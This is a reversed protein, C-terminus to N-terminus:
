KKGSLVEVWQGQARAHISADYMAEAYAGPFYFRGRFTVHFRNTITISNERSYYKDSYLSFYSLVRDDRIDQYDLPKSAEIPRGEMRPNIIEWGSPAIQTLAINKVQRGSTNKVTTKVMVEDGQRLASPDIIKGEPSMITVDIKLRSSVPKEEGSQPVGRVSVVSFLKKDGTNTIKVPTKSLPFGELDTKFIVKGYGSIKEKKGNVEYDFSSDNSQHAGEGVFFRSMAMLSYAISQTSHWHDKALIDSIETALPFARNNDNLRTLVELIVARDRLSSGYSFGPTSYESVSLTALQAMDAAAEKQGAIAYAGALFWRSMNNLDRKEKLRNMAGLEPAGALSLTYLRYARVAEPESSDSNAKSRQFKLWSDLMNPPVFYGKAKAELLFHGAYNAAWSDYSGGPWYTFGGSAMQFGKLKEIGRTVNNQIGNKKDEKLDMLNGLYLQPFVASTTQEICGHPYRILYHLRKGLNLPPMSSVELSVVNTGPLGHPTIQVSWSKGPLLAGHYQRVTPPNPNRVTLFTKSDTKFAGSRAEINVWGQGLTEKSKLSFLGVKEQDRGFVVKVTSPGVIDFHEDTEIKLESATVNKSNAFVSVPVDFNEKMSVLRPLTPLIMLPERVFVSKDTQGYAGDKGAVVMVRVQGAYQPLTVTHEKKENASLQFPGLYKVIPPFRRKEEQRDPGDTGAGGGISLLREIEGGYAGLVHDFMDWTLVGLAEKKYFKKHLDPTKFNTLGLIGEDVIAVTYTMERGTKESVEITVPTMPRWEDASELVPSLITNPDSVKIPTVGFLRIPRDNDKGGHPQLLTISIYVNPAMEPTIKFQYRNNGPGFDVWKQQFLKAGTEVTVLARGETNEPVTIEATEGVLYEEKEMSLFLTDASKAQEDGRYWWGRYGVYFTTGSCHGGEPDCVRLLYRGWSPHSITFKWEGIGNKIDVKDSLVPSHSRSSLFRALSDKGRDWWWQWRVKYLSVDVNSLSVPEGKVDVARLDVQHEKDTVVMRNWMEKAVLNLGVYNEYPYYPFAKHNVSFAGGQEYVKTRFMARLAGPAGSARGALHLPFVAKGQADLKNSFVISKEDRIERAPDDFVFQDWKKFKTKTSSFSVEVEAKLGGALAGHLWSSSLKAKTEKVSQQISDGGVDLDIKLRNPVVTEIKLPKDFVRNGLRVKAQWTGTPASEETKLSFRYFDGVPQSNTITELIQGRPNYLQLTVPHSPPLTKNKDEKVFILHIDDGPRWVDRECYITGKVGSQVKEGGTDFHSISLAGSQNVRLYGIDEGYEVQVYFPVTELDFIAFGDGNTSEESILQNQYDFLKVSAGSLSKTTKLNTVVVVFQGTQDRKALLGLNSAIFNRKIEKRGYYGVYFADKCPNDRDRWNFDRYSYSIMSETPDVPVRQRNDIYNVLTAEKKIDVAEDSESCNVDANSRNFSIVLEFMEGRHKKLLDTVDIDYRQWEDVELSPLDITRRWLYRGVRHMSNHGNLDNLQFFNGMNNRFVQLATVQVSKLNMAEFPVSLTDSEPVIVGNGVFRVQPKQSAFGFEKSFDKGLEEGRSNKLSRSVTVVVKGKMRQRPTIHLTNGERRVAFAANRMSVLGNLNQSTNIPDSFYVVVYQETGQRIKFDTVKFTRLGPVVVEKKQEGGKMGIVSGLFTLVLHGDDEKRHLGSIKFTHKKALANHTWDIKIAPSGSLEALLMKEVEENEAVDATVLHGALFMMKPDDLVTELGDMKVEYNQAIVKLYFEYDGAEVPLDKIRSGFVRVFHQTGPKLDGKPVLVIERVSTISIEGPIAPETEMFSGGTRGIQKEDFVDRSFVISINSKRSIVGQTHHDIFDMWVPNVKKPAPAKKKIECGGVFFFANCLILGLLVSLRNKMM